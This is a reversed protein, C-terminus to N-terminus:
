QTPENETPGGKEAPPNMQQMIQLMFQAGQFFSEEALERKSSSKLKSKGQSWFQEFGKAVANTMLKQFEAPSMAEQKQEENKVEQKQEEM